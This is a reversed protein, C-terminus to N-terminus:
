GRKVEKLDRSMRQPAAWLGGGWHAKGRFTEMLILRGWVKVAVAKQETEMLVGVENVTEVDPERQITIEKLVPVKDPKHSHEEDTCPSTM